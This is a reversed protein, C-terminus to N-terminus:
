NHVNVRMEYDRGTWRWFSMGLLKPLESGPVYVEAMQYPVLIETRGPKVLYLTGNVSLHQSSMTWNQVVLRGQAPLPVASPPDPQPEPQLERLKRGMQAIRNDVERASKELQELRERASVPDNEAENGAPPSGADDTRRLQRELVNLRARMTRVQLELLEVRDELRSASNHSDDRLPPAPSPEQATLRASAISSALFVAIVALHSARM